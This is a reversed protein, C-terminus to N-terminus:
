LESTHEESRTDTEYHLFDDLLATLTNERIAVQKPEGNPHQVINLHEGILVKGLEPKLPCFGFAELPERATPDPRVAVVTFDLSRDTFFFAGPDLEFTVPPLLKGDLGTQYNFEIQSRSAVAPAGLVHNNTMLLSRSIMFGTGWGI